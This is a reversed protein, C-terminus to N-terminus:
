PRVLEHISGDLSLILVEREATEAFGGIRIPSTLPKKFVLENSIKKGDEVKLAWIAGSFWDSYLYKGRLDPFREGRYVLGGTISIGDKRGYEHVPDIFSSGAPAEEGKLDFAHLGERYNWGYNGGKVILNIEEFKNQGVDACWLRDSGLEFHLGWPNRLGWAFIEPRVDDGKGIFPNDKPIGYPLGPDRTDVDIRVITGLLTSLDQANNFPDNARGGDGLAIYLLDDFGFHLQGSNHNWFPQPVELLVRESEMDAKMPDGDAVQFESIVSRKPTQQSYYVFFRGNEAYRPHFALGLLGEEFFNEYLNRDSIDFFVTAESANPDSPLILIRGDQQVLFHRNSAKPTAITLPKVLKLNEYVPSLAMAAEDVAAVSWCGMAVFGFIWAVRRFLSPSSTKM